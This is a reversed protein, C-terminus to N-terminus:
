IGREGTNGLLRNIASRPIGGSQLADSMKKLGDFNKRPDQHEDNLGLIEIMVHVLADLDDPSRAGPEPVWSTLTSELETLDVGMAHSIRNAEYATAVPQARDEKTGRSYIERVFIVGRRHGPMPEQKGLV